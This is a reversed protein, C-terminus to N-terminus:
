ITLDHDQKYMVAEAFVNSLVLAFLGCILLILACIVTLPTIFLVVKVIFLASVAIGCIGVRRLARVNRMDFPERELTQFIRILEFLIFSAGLGLLVVFVTMFVQYSPSLSYADGLIFLWTRVFMPLTVLCALSALLAVFLLALVLRHLLKKKM